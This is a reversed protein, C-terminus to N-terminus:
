KSQGRFLDALAAASRRVDFEREVLRRGAEARVRAGQPDALVRGIATRLQEPRGPEALLGTEGDRALEPIGSLRSAIVPVGAALAEMLAVPIGEMQGNRAVISPLVFLDAHDLLETVAPEALSAHFRVRRQLGLGRALRELEERLPGSGVLDLDVRELDGEECALAQLLVAHGKYEYLSAVCLARVRGAPGPARPRFRYASPDVGCHVVYVPTASANYAALFRRNYESIAVVFRAASLRRRLFSQDVFLDHAHATFSYPIGTLRHCLWAALLPYTAYHAHLHDVPETALRRAHAAALPVTALARALVRPRRAYGGAVLAVSTALRLPRRMTWWALAAAAERSRPRRLRGIWPRAVAHVIPDVPPFLSLLDLEMGPQESVAALERAIFTESVHPFRSVLYAIRV